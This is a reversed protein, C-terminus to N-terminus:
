LGNAPNVSAINAPNPAPPKEAVRLLAINGLTINKKGYAQVPKEAIMGPYTIVVQWMATPDGDVTISRTNPDFYPRLSSELSLKLFQPDLDEIPTGPASILSGTMTIRNDERSVAVSTVIFALGIVFLGLAPYHTTLRFLRKFELDAAM